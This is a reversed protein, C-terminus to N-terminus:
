NISGFGPSLKNINAAGSSGTFSGGGSQAGGSSKLFNFFFAYLGTQTKGNKNKKM